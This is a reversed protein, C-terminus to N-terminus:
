RNTGNTCLYYIKVFDTNPEEHQSPITTINNNVPRVRLARVIKHLSFKVLTCMFLRFNWHLFGKSNQLYIQLWLLLMRFINYNCKTCYWTPGTHKGTSYKFIYIYVYILIGCTCLEIFKLFPPISDILLKLINDCELPGFSHSNDMFMRNTDSFSSCMFNVPRVTKTTSVLFDIYFIIFMLFM